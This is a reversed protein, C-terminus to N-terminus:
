PHRFFLVTQFLAGFGRVCRLQWSIANVTANLAPTPDVSQHLVLKAPLKANVSELFESILDSTIPKFNSLVFAKAITVHLRPVTVRDVIYQKAEDGTM